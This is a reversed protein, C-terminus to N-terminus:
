SPSVEENDTSVRERYYQRQESDMPAIKAFPGDYSIAEWSSSHGYYTLMVAMRISNVIARVTESRTDQLATIFSRRDDLSMVTFRSFEGYVMPLYQMASLALKFDSRVSEGVFYLEEDIRAVVEAQVIAEPDVLLAAEAFRQIIVAEEADLRLLPGLPTQYVTDKTEAGFMSCGAQSLVTGAAFGSVAIKIFRRRPLPAFM